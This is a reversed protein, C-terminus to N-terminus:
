QKGTYVTHLAHGATVIHDSSTKSWLEFVLLRQTVHQCVVGSWCLVVEELRDVVGGGGTDHYTRTTCSQQSSYCNYGSHVYSYSCDGNVALTLLKATTFHEIM